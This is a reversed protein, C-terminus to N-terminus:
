RGPGPVGRAADRLGRAYAPCVAALDVARLENCAPLANDTERSARRKSREADLDNTLTEIRKGAAEIRKSDAQASAIMDAAAQAQQDILADKDGVQSELVARDAKLEDIKSCQRTTVVGLILTVAALGAAIYQFM